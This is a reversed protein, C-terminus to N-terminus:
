WGTPLYLWLLSAKWRLIINRSESKWWEKDDSANSLNSFFVTLWGVLSWLKFVTWIFYINSFIGSSRRYLIYQISHLWTTNKPTRPDIAQIQFIVSFFTLWGVLWGDYSSYLEFSIYIQFIEQAEGTYFTSHLIYGHLLIKAHSSWNFLLADDDGLFRWIFSIGVVLTTNRVQFISQIHYLWWFYLETIYFFLWYM